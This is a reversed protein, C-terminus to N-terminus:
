LDAMMAVSEQRFHLLVGILNNTLDPGPLLCDHLSAGAFRASADLVVHFKKKRLHLVGHHPLYWLMGDDRRLEEDPIRSAHGKVFFDDM